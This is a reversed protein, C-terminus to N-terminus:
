DLPEYSFESFLDNFLLATGLAAKDGFAEFAVLSVVSNLIDCRRDLMTEEEETMDRRRRQGPHLNSTIAKAIMAIKFANSFESNDLLHFLLGGVGLRGLFQSGRSSSFGTSEIVKGVLVGITEVAEYVILGAACGRVTHGM